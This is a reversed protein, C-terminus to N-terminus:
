SATAISLAHREAPQERELRQEAARRSDRRAKQLLGMAADSRVHATRWNLTAEDLARQADTLAEEDDILDYECRERREALDERRASAYLAVRAVTAEPIADLHGSLAALEADFVQLAARRQQAQAEAANRRTAAQARERAAREERLRRLRLLMAPEELKM